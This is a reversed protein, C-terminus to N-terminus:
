VPRDLKSARNWHELHFPVRLLHISPIIDRSLDKRYDSERKATPLIFGFGADGDDGGAQAFASEHRFPAEAQLKHDQANAFSKSKRCSLFSDPIYSGQVAAGSFSFAHL